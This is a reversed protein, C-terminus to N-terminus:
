RRSDAVDAEVVDLVSAIPGVREEGGVPREEHGDLVEARRDRPDHLAAALEVEEHM